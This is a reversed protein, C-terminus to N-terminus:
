RLCTLVERAAVSWSRSRHYVAYGADGASVWDAGDWGSPRWESWADHAASSEACNYVACGHAMGAAILTSKAAFRAAYATIVVRCHLLLASVSEAPLIGHVQVLAGGLSAPTAQVPPGVDHVRQIGARQCFTEVSRLGSGYVRSRVPPLGLVAAQPGRTAPWSKRPPEGFCSPTAVLRCERQPDISRLGELAVPSSVFRAESIRSLRRILRKQKPVLWFRTTWPPGSLHMEHFITTLRFQPKGHELGDILWEPCGRPDFGYGVYHLLINSAPTSALAARLTNTFETASPQFEALDPRSPRGRRVPALFFTEWGGAALANKLREAYDAVGGVDPSVEPVIQILRQISRTM